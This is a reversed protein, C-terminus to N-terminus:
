DERKQKQTETTKGLAALAHTIAAREANSRGRSVAPDRVYLVTGEQIVGGV